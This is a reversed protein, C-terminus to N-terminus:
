YILKAEKMDGKKWAQKFANKWIDANTITQMASLAYFNHPNQKLDEALIQKAKKYNKQQILANALYHRSPILWDRPETYILEDELKVAKEFYAVAANANGSKESITGQLIKETIRSASIAANFPTLVFELEPNKMAEQLLVLTKKADTLKGTNAEALGKAWLSLLHAYAYNKNMVPMSLLKEWKGYRVDVMQPVMYVYQVFNGMPQPLSLFSSDFSAVCEEGTKKSFTYNPEMMACATKMHLNHILYLPSNNVVDPFLELYKNYGSISKENVEIGKQYYGTRIYIHSPMHIMHSVSPMMSMLRDASKTALGPTPSAEVTHIYYHNAGPHMPHEKLNKQLVSVIEPTWTEPKGDHKWYMWPHQLMLADAYLAAIDADHPFHMYAKKMEKAYLENLTTRSISSDASYRVQMAQILAKEKASASTSTALAIVAAALADPTAAYEIDNINPGFALAEAWHLMANNEDFTQAKKFSAMSEIIHFAYYMNIGQDFYFRASDSKTHIDWHYNGWGPLVGMKQALSDTNYLTWDPSCQMISKNKYFQQRTQVQILEANKKTSIKFAIVIILALAAELFLIKKKM